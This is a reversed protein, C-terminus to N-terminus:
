KVKMGLYHISLRSLSGCLRYWLNELFLVYVFGVTYSGNPIGFCYQYARPPFLGLISGM